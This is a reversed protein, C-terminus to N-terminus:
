TIQPKLPVLNETTGQGEEENEFRQDRIELRQDRIELRQRWFIMGGKGQYYSIVECKHVKCNCAFLEKM